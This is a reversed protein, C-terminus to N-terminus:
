TRMPKLCKSWREKGRKEARRQREQRKELIWEGDTRGDSSERWKTRVWSPSICDTWKSLTLKWSIVSFPHDKICFTWYKLCLSETFYTHIARYELPDPVEPPYKPAKLSFQKFGSNRSESLSALLPALCYDSFQHIPTVYEPQKLVWTMLKPTFHREIIAYYSLGAQSAQSHLQFISICLVHIKDVNEWM